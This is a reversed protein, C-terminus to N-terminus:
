VDAFPEGNSLGKSSAIGEIVLDSPYKTPDYPFETPVTCAYAPSAVLVLLGFISYSFKWKLM